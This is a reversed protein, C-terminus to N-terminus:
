HKKGYFYEKHIEVCFRHVKDSDPMDPLQSKEKAEELMSGLITVIQIVEERTYYGGQKIKRATELEIGTLTPHMAGTTFLEVGQIGIRYAHSCMKCDYGFKEIQDKRKERCVGKKDVLGRIQDRYYGHYGGFLHKTVVNNRIFSMLKVGIETKTIWYREEAFPIEALTPNGKLYLKLFYKMSYLTSEIKDKGEGQCHEELEKPHLTKLGFYNDETTLINQIDDVFVGKIDTDSDAHSLGYLKSGVLTSMVTEM